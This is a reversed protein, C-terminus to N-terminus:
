PEAPYQRPHCTFPLRALRRHCDHLHLLLRPRPIIHPPIANGADALAATGIICREERRGDSTAAPVLRGLVGFYEVKASSGMGMGMGM